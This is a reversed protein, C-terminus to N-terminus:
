SSNEDGFDTEPCRIGAIFRQPFVTQHIAM